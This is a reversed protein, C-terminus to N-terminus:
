TSSPKHFIAVSDVCLSVGNAARSDHQPKASVIMRADKPLRGTVSVQYVQATAAICCVVKDWQERDAETV